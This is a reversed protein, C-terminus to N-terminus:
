TEEWSTTTLPPFQEGLPPLSTSCPQVAEVAKLAIASRVPRQPQASSIFSAGEFIMTPNNIPKLLVAKDQHSVSLFECIIRAPNESSFAKTATASLPLKLAAARM